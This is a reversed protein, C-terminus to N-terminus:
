HLFKIASIVLAAQTVSMGVVWKIIETKFEAIDVKIEKRLDDMNQKTSIREEFIEALLEAQVEAHKPKIGVDKLKNAYALTDFCVAHSM